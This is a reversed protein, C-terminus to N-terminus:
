YFRILEYLSLSCIHTEALSKWRDKDWKNRAEGRCVPARPM